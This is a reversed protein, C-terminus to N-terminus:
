SPANLRIIIDTMQQMEDRLNARHSPESFQDSACVREWQEMIAKFRAVFGQAKALLWPADNLLQREQHTLM